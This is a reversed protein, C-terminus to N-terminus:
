RDTEAQPGEVRMYAVAGVSVANSLAMVASPAVRGGSVQPSGM